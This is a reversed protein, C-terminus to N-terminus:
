CFASKSACIASRPSLPWHTRSLRIELWHCHFVAPRSTGPKSRQLATEAAPGPRWSFCKLTVSMRDDGDVIGVARDGDFGPVLRFHHHDGARWGIFHLDIEFLRAVAHVDDVWARACSAAGFVDAGVVLDPNRLVGLKLNVVVRAGDVTALTSPSM